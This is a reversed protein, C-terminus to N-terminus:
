RQLLFSASPLPVTLVASRGRKGNKTLFRGTDGVLVSGFRQRAYLCLNLLGNRVDVFDRICFHGDHDLFKANGTMLKTGPEM